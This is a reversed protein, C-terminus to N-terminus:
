AAKIGYLTFTSGTAFNSGSNHELKISNIAATSRWLNVITEAGAYTTTPNANSRTIFTKNTTTNSYAMFNVIGLYALSTTGPTTFYGLVGYATNSQRGSGATTGNGYLYTFSYNTGTDSNLIIRIEHTTNTANASNVVLVLDTYNASISSFTVSAAGSTLTNTAIPEYTAPM